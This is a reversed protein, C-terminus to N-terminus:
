KYRKTLNLPNLKMHFVAIIILKHEKSDIFYHILFPFKHMVKTRVEKYKMPFATPNLQILIVDARVNDLFRKGIGDQRENYWLATKQIDAKAHSIIEIRWM